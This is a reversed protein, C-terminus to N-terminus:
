GLRKQNSIVTSLNDVIWPEGPIGDLHGPLKAAGGNHAFGAMGKDFLTHAFFVRDIPTFHAGVM